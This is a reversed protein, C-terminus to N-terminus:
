GFDYVRHNNNDSFLNSFSNFIRDKWSINKATEHGEFYEAQMIKMKVLVLSSAITKSYNSQTILADVDGEEDIINATGNLLLRSDTGRKHFDLYAYFTRNINAAQRGNCSTFFWLHGDDDVRLVQIVNNPLLLESNIESKFLGVKIEKIKGTIFGFSEGNNYM